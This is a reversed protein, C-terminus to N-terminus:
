LCASRLLLPNRKHTQDLLSKLRARDADAMSVYKVGVLYAQPGSLKKTWFVCAQATIIDEELVPATIKLLLGTERALEERSVFQLGDESIDWIINGGASKTILGLFNLPLTNYQVRCGNVTYRACQRREPVDQPIEIIM